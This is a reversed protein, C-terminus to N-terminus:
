NEYTGIKFARGDAATIEGRRLLVRFLAHPLYNDYECRVFAGELQLGREMDRWVDFPSYYAWGSSTLLAENERATTAPTAM